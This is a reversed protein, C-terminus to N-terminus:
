GPLVQHPARLSKEAPAFIHFISFIADGSAPQLVYRLDKPHRREEEELTGRSPYAARSFSGGVHVFKEGGGISPSQRFCEHADLVHLQPPQDNMENLIAGFELVGRAM